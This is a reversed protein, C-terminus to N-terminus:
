GDTLIGEKQRKGGYKEKREPPYTGSNRQSQCDGSDFALQAEHLVGLWKRM